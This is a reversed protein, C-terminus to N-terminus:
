EDTDVFKRIFSLSLSLSLPIPVLFHFSEFGLRSSHCFCVSLSPSCETGQDLSRFLVLGVCPNMGQNNGKGKNKEM